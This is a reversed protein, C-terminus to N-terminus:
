RGNLYSLALSVTPLSNFVPCRRVSALRDHLTASRGITFSMPLLYELLGSTTNLISLTPHPLPPHDRKARKRSPLAGLVDWDPPMQFDQPCVDGLCWYQILKNDSAKLPKGPHTKQRLAAWDSSALKRKLNLREGVDGHLQFGNWVSSQTGCRWTLEGGKYVLRGLLATLKQDSARLAAGGDDDRLFEGHALSHYYTLATQLYRTDLQSEAPVWPNRPRTSQAM